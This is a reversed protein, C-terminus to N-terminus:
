LYIASLPELNRIVKAPIGIALSNDPINKTVVSGAGITVNKGIIIDPLVTANAGIQSFSGIRCRGLLTVNPSIEVYNGIECDHTIIANYYILCGEGICVSNSFVANMLINCGNGIKIDYSSMLALPSIASVLQGGLAMFKKNLEYRLKPNGIGITFENGNCKFFELVQAENKLIPFIDYLFDGIDTNVDDYFAVKDVKKLQHFVELVEKAFGKAGIILM